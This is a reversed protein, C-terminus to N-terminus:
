NIRFPQLDQKATELEHASQLAGLEGQKTAIQQETEVIQEQTKVLQDAAFKEQTPNGTLTAGPSSKILQAALAQAVLMARQPDTDTVNIELFQNNGLPKVVYDPLWTLGLEKMAAEKIPERYSLDIYFSTLQQNLWFENSSPNPETITKGILLTTQATFVPPQNRVVIYTTGAALVATIAILWWWKLLPTFYSRIDM